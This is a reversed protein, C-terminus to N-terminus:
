SRDQLQEEAVALEERTNINRFSNLSGADEIEHEDLINVELRDLAHVIRDEDAEMAARCAAVMPERRYVAHTTELWTGQVRPVAAEVAEVGAFLLRVVDPDVFPMDCAVVFAVPSRDLGSLGSAIGAMPGLDPIPDMAFQCPPEVGALAAGIDDRQGERCNVVLEDVLPAIRDAVHRIM